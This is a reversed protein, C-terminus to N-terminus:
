NRNPDSLTSENWTRSALIIITQRDGYNAVVGYFSKPLSPASRILLCDGEVNAMNALYRRIAMAKVHGRVRNFIIGIM